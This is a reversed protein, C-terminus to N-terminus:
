VRLKREVSGAEDLQAPASERIGVRAHLKKLFGPAWWNARGALRMFSPVLLGRIITADILVALALGLGIAKLYTVGSTLFSLFVIAILAAAATVVRGTRELGRAVALTNDGTLDYEEKIRSLLFVEYDMSLGFSICFLLMVVSWIITGTVTFDGVWGQLHGDQFGWVLVGFTASLSLTNLVIAKLPVVVSGTMLFLLVFVSVAIVILAAPLSDRLSGLSDVLVAAPGTLLATFPPDLARIDSVLKAGEDSSASVTPSIRLATASPGSLAALAPAPEAVRSGDAFIGTPAEVRAVGPLASLQEAYRTLEAGMADASADPIVVFLSETAELPFEERLVDGVQHSVASRPLVRDDQLGMQLRLFPLGLIVLFATTALLVPVPRRMVWMALRHWFAGADASQAPRKVVRWRDIRPGLAALLAPLVVISAFAAFMATPIGAYAFSRLFYLPFVLLGALALMVTVASFLVTRGATRIAEVIAAETPRGAALEENYRKLIFLSYDIALGLGLGTVVNMALVSVDTVASVLRVVLLAGMMAVIGLAVPVGASVLSGFVLVLALLTLPIAVMEAKVLDKETYDTMERNAVAEGGAEVQLGDIEGSYRELLGGAREQVQDEDGALRALVLARTGDKSRLADPRGATWYSTVGTVGPEDALRETIRTAAAAVDPNDVGREDSVLLVIDPSGAGLEEQLVREARASETSADTFGGVSLQDIVSGGIAGAVGLLVLTALLVMKRHVVAFWALRQM